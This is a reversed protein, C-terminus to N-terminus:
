DSLVYRAGRVAKLRVVGGKLAHVKEVSTGNAVLLQIQESKM